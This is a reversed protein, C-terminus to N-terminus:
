ILNLVEKIKEIKHIDKNNNKSRRYGDKVSKSYVKLYDELSLVKYKIGDENIVKLKTYDIGAFPLLDEEFSFAIKVGEKHFEHEHLDVLDYELEEITNRLLGWKDKLYELPILMDIDQPYFEIDSIVKLGLSGYLVPIIDLNENLKQAIILFEDYLTAM